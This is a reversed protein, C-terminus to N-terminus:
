ARSEIVLLIVSIAAIALMMPSLERRRGSLTFLVVHSIFGWVIGQTISFTLPVLVMTLFAPVAEEIRSVDLETISRFMLAGVLILVPATAYAPVMAAIPAVFLCPLFWAATVISARGSRAGAEIGAASEIYATGSSTGLLGAGLTALADVILGRRLGRPHGQEDVLGAAHSVGVFTSLSDFLDTFFIALMPPLLSLKLSGRLDAAGVLSFDPASFMSKPWSVLGLVLAVATVGFIGVLFAFPNKRRVLLTMGLLAVVALIARADLKGATVFTAPDPAVLGANKFGIFALFAGIGAAVARKLSTPIALAVAERLPTASVLLFIVGSWFVCGLATPWPVKRGLIISFTFFANLGMGPAVAFPIKAYVGMLLTMLAALVVTATLVGAFPLGTGETSLIAPNVIVIYAMTFFTTTGGIFDGLGGAAEKAPVAADGQM